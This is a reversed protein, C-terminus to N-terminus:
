DRRSASVCAVQGSVASRSCRAGCAACDMSSLIGQRCRLAVDARCLGLDDVGACSDQGPLVCRYGQAEVSFGCRAPSRCHETREQGRDCFIALDGFCRGDQPLACGTPEPAAQPLRQWLWADSADVRAYRDEGVCSASGASLVGVTRITGDSARALLPGGSDAWCGGSAFGSVGILAQETDILETLAFGRLGENGLEDLGFGAVVALRGTWEPGISEPAPPVPVIGRERVAIRASAVNLLLLDLAPHAFWADPSTSLDPAGASAGFEIRINSPTRDLLCHRAALVWAEAVLLGSCRNEYPPDPFELGIGVVAEIEAERMGLYPPSPAGGVLAQSTAALKCEVTGAPSACATAGLDLGILGSALPFWARPVLNLGSAVPVRALGDGPRV